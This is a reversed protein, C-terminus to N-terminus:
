PTLCAPDRWRGQQLYRENTADDGRPTNMATDLISKQQQQQQQQHHRRCPCNRVTIIISKKYKMRKGQPRIYHVNQKVLYLLYM